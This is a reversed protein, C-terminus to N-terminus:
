GVISSNPIDASILSHVDAGGPIVVATVNHGSGLPEVLITKLPPSFLYFLSFSHSSIKYIMLCKIFLNYIGYKNIKKIENFYIYIYIYM